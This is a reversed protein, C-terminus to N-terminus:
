FPFFFPPQPHSQVQQHSLPGCMSWAPRRNSHGLGGWRRRGRQLQQLAVTTGKHPKNAFSDYQCLRPRNWQEWRQPSLNPVARGEDKDGEGMQSLVSGTFIELMINICSGKQSNSRYLCSFQIKCRLRSLQKIGYEASSHNGTPSSFKGTIKKKKKKCGSSCLWRDITVTASYRWSEGPLSGCNRRDLINVNM